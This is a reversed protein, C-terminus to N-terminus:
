DTCLLQPASGISWTICFYELVLIKSFECCNNAANDGVSELFFIVGSYIDFVNQMNDCQGKKEENLVNKVSNYLIDIVGDFNGRSRIILLKM